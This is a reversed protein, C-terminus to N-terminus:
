SRPATRGPTPSPGAGASVILGLISGVAAGVAIGIPGAVSGAMAGAGGWLATELPKGESLGGSAGISGRGREGAAKHYGLDFLIPAPASAAATSADILPEAASAPLALAASLAAASLKRATM